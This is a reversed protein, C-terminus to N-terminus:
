VTLEENTGFDLCTRASSIIQYPLAISIDPKCNPALNMYSLCFNQIIVLNLKSMSLLKARIWVHM